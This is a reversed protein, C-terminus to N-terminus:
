NDYKSLVSEVTGKKAPKSDDNVAKDWAYQKRENNKASLMKEMCRADIDKCILEEGCFEGCKEAEAYEAIKEEAFLDKCEDMAIGNMKSNIEAIRKEGAVKVANKRRKIEAERMDALDHKLSENEAALADSATKLSNIRSVLTSVIQGGDITVAEDGEGMVASVSNEKIREPVVTEEGDVFTYNYFRGNDSLLAVTSGSTGLVSYGNFKVALDDKNLIMIKNQEKKHNNKHEGKEDKDASHEYYSAARLRLEEIGNESMSAARINAGAVAETVGRGLVTVGVVEWEEEYEVGDVVRSKTVVTEISVSMKGDNADMEDLFEKNYFTPFIGEAVVWEVGDINEMRVNERGNITRVIWGAMHESTAGIFSAYKKGTKPDTKVEFDHSNAVKNGIVSYLIPIDAFEELHKEINEYVWGNRNVNGNLMELRVKYNKKRDKACIRITGDSYLRKQVTETTIENEEM